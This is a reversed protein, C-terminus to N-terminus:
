RRDESSWRRVAAARTTRDRREGPSIMLLEDVTSVDGTASATTMAAFAQQDDTYPPIVLLVLRRDRTGLMEITNVTGTRHGELRVALGEIVLDSPASAWEGLRYTIRRVPGLRGAVTALLAPLEVELDDSRPWWAGDVYGTKASDPKLRVRPARDDVADSSQRHARANDQTM